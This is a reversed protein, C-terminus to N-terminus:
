KQEIMADCLSSTDLALRLQHKTTGAHDASVPDLRDAARVFGVALLLSSLLGFVLRKANNMASIVTRVPRQNDIDCVVPIGTTAFIANAM